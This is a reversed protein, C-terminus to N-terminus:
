KFGQAGSRRAAFEQGIMTQEECNLVTEAASFVNAEEIRIHESYLSLLQTATQSLEEEDHRDLGFDSMWNQFLREIRRHLSEEERHERELRAITTTVAPSVKGILRPFLSLEEDQTHQRGSTSFYRLAAQAANQQEKSLSYGQAEGAVQKLIGAFHQIRCHCDRLMSVPKDYGADPLAGIQVAM